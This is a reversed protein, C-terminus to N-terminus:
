KRSTNRTENRSKRSQTSNTDQSVVNYPHGSHPDFRSATALAKMVYRKAQSITPTKPCLISLAGIAYPAGSGIAYVGSSDTAWAYDNDIQYITRNVSILLVSGHEAVHQSSDKSPTSYGNVDFCERLAPIFKVTIFEDLKKGKMGAPPQPPTLAHSVLNIARVDGAVGILYPGVNAIKSMSLALTQINTSFGDGDVSLIRSDACMVSFGDGQIGVITTM